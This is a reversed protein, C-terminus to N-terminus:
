LLDRVVAWEAPYDVVRYRGSLGWALSPLLLLPMLVAVWAWAAPLEARRIRRTGADLLLGVGVAVVAVLPAVWKQADRLLGAGPFHGVVWALVDTGFGLSSISSLTLGIAGLLLLRGAAYRDAAPSRRHRWGRRALMVLAAVSVVLA